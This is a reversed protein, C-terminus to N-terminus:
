AMLWGQREYEAARLRTWEYEPGRDGECVKRVLEGHVAADAKPGFERMMLGVVAIDDPSELLWELGSKSEFNPDFRVHKPWYKNGLSGRMEQFAGPRVRCQLVLQAWHNKEDLPFMNAYVPFAAYEISPSLYITKRTKSHAQGHSVEVGDEGPRRLGKLLIPVLKSSATGHYAVCWDKFLHFDEVNVAFRLWGCPKYYPKGGRFGYDASSKLSYTRSHPANFVSGQKNLLELLRPLAPGLNHQILVRALLQALKNHSETSGVLLAAEIQHVVANKSGAQQSQMRDLQRRAADIRAKGLGAHQAQCCAKDINAADGRQLAEM